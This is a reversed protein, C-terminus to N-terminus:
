SGKNEDERSVQILTLGLDRIRALLGHLAAQDAIYGTLVTEPQPTEMTTMMLNEFWDTWDNDLHGAIRITYLSKASPMTFFDGSQSTAM